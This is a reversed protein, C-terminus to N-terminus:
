SQPFHNDDFGWRLPYQKQEPNQTQDTEPKTGTTQKKKAKNKNQTITAKKHKIIKPSTKPQNLPKPKNERQIQNHHPDTTAVDINSPM